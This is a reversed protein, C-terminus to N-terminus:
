NQLEGNVVPVSAGIWPLNRAECTPVERGPPGIEPTFAGGFSQDVRPVVAVTTLALNGDPAATIQRVYSDVIAQRNSDLSISGYPGEVTLSSLAARLAQHGDSLDGGAEELAGILAKAAVFYNVLFGSHAQAAAPSFNGDPDPFDDFWRDLIATHEAVSPLNLDPAVGFSGLYAGELDPDLAGVGGPAFEWLLTGMHREPNLPGKADAFARLSSHTGEGGVAWFYGDVEDPDPLRDVFPSYDAANLPPFVRSIVDGGAACFEAIFGAASTWGFVYDDMIVAATDWGLVNRAYDGMGANWQAGDGNFSFFNPARVHMTTEMAGATGNLFTRDPHDKAYGAVAVSEVESSPGIMIDAGLQEVLRRTEALATEATDDACGVGVLEVPVGAASAGTFGESPKARDVIEAGAYEAFAAGVGALDQEHFGGFFEECDSLVALKIVGDGSGSDDGGCAAVSVVLALVAAAGATPIFM